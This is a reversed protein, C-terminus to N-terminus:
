RIDEVQKLFDNVVRELTHVSILHSVIPGSHLDLYEIPDMHQYNNLWNLAHSYLCRGYIEQLEM